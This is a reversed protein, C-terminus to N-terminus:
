DEGAPSTAQGDEVGSGAGNPQWGLAALADTVARRVHSDSDKFAAKLPEAARQDGIQGLAEAAALRVSPNDDKLGSVLPQVADADGIQGLAVAADRRVRWLKQYELAKILGLMDGRAMLRDVNPPGFLPLHLDEESCDVYDAACIQPREM